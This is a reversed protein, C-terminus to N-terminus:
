PEIAAARVAEVVREIQWDSMHPGIPLSLSEAALAEGAPLSGAALGLGAYAAQLHPPTPYHILTEVGAAFLAERLSDRRPSRVVFLHWIHEGEPAPAPLGLGLGGLESMYTSAIRRRRENWTDLYPLKARLVAAQIEDLRSNAGLM